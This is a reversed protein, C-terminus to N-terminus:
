AIHALVTPVIVFVALRRVGQSGQLIRASSKKGLFELDDTPPGSKYEVCVLSAQNEEM